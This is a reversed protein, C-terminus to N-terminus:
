VATLSFHELFLTKNIINNNKCFGNQNICLAGASMEMIFMVFLDVVPLNGLSHFTENNM